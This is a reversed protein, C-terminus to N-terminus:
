WFREPFRTSRPSTRTGRRHCSGPGARGGILQNELPMRLALATHLVARDESTNVHAGALMADRHEEVAATRALGPDGPHGPAQQLRYLPRCRHGRPPPGRDPIIQASYLPAPTPLTVHPPHNRLINTNTIRLERYERGTIQHAENISEGPPTDPSDIDSSHKTM